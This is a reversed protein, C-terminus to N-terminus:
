RSHVAIPELALKESSLQFNNTHQREIDLINKLNQNRFIGAMELRVYIKDKKAIMELKGKSANKLFIKPIGMVKSANLIELGALRKRKDLDFILNDIQFSSSYTRRTPVLYIVDEILDYIYKGKREKQKKM